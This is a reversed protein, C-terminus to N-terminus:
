IWRVSFREAGVLQSDSDVFEVKALVAEEPSDPLPKGDMFTVTLTYNGPGHYSESTLHSIRSRNYFMICSIFPPSIVKDYRSQKIVPINEIRRDTNQLDIRPHEFDGTVSIDLYLVPSEETARELCGGTAVAALFLFLFLYLIKFNM